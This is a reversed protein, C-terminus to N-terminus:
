PFSEESYDDEASISGSVPMEEASNNRQREAPSYTGDTGAVNDQFCDYCEWNIWNDPKTTDDKGCITCQAMRHGGM